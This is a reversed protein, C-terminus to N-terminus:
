KCWQEVDKRASDTEAKRADGVLPVMEGKENKTVIIGPSSELQILRKRANDCLNQRADSEAKQQEPNKGPPAGDSTGDPSKAPTTGEGPKAPAASESGPKSGVAVERTKVKKELPPKDSYITKGSADKWSYIQASAALPLALLTVLSILIPTRM